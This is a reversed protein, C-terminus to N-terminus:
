PEDTKEPHAIALMSRASYGLANLLITLPWLLLTSAKRGWHYTFFTVRNYSVMRGVAQQLGRQSGEGQGPRYLRPALRELPLQLISGFLEKGELKPFHVEVTQYGARQLAEVLSRQNWWTLHNPPYDHSERIGWSRYLSRPSPVSLLLPAAPFRRRIAALFDVPQPVHELVEFLTVTKPQPGEPPWGEPGGLHVTFGRGRMSEVAVESLETGLATFGAKEVAALFWGPGFSIDLVAFGRPLHTRIWELAGQKPPELFHWAEKLLQQRPLLSARKALLPQTSSSYFSNWSETASEGTWGM